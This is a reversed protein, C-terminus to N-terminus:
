DRASLPMRSQIAALTSWVVASSIRMWYPPEAFALFAGSSEAKGSMSPKRTPPAESLGSIASMTAAIEAAFYLGRERTSLTKM